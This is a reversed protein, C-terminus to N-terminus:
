SSAACAVHLNPPTLLLLHKHWCPLCWEQKDANDTSMDRAKGVLGRANCTACTGNFSAEVKKMFLTAWKELGTAPVAVKHVSFAAVESLRLPGHFRIVDNRYDAHKLIRDKFAAAIHENDFTAELVHWTTAEVAARMPQNYDASMAAELAEAITKRMPIYSSRFLEPVICCNLDFHLAQADAEGFALFLTLTTM